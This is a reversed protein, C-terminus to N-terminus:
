IKQPALQKLLYQGEHLIRASASRWGAQHLLRLREPDMWDPFVDLVAETVTPCFEGQWWEDCAQSLSILASLTERHQHYREGGGSLLLPLLLLHHNKRGWYQPARGADDAEVALVTEGILQSCQAQLHPYRVALSAVTQWFIAQYRLLHIRHPPLGEDLADDLIRAYLHVRACDILTPLLDDSEDHLWPEALLLLFTPAADILQQLRALARQSITDNLPLPSVRMLDAALSDRILASLRAHHSIADM